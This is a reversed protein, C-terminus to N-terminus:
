SHGFFHSVTRELADMPITSGSVLPVSREPNHREGRRLASVKLGSSM